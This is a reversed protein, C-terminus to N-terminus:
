NFIMERTVSVEGDRGPDREGAWLCVKGFLCKGATEIRVERECESERCAPKLGMAGGLNHGAHPLQLWHGSRM